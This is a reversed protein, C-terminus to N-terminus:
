HKYMEDNSSAKIINSFSDEYMKSVDEIPTSIIVDNKSLTFEREESFSYWPIFGQKGDKAFGLTIPNNFTITHNEDDERILEAVIEEGMGATYKLVIINM